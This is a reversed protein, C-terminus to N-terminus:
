DEGPQFYPQPSVDVAKKSVRGITELNFTLQQPSVDVAKKSVREIKELNFTFQQPSVDM